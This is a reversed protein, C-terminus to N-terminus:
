SGSRHRQRRRRSSSADAVNPQANAGGRRPRAIRTPAAQRVGNWWLGGGQNPDYKVNLNIFIGTNNDDEDIFLVAVSSSEAQSERRPRL